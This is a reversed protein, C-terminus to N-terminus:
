PHVPAHGVEKANFVPQFGQSFFCKSPLPKEATYRLEPVSGEAPVWDWCPPAQLSPSVETSRSKLWYLRRRRVWGCAAAEIIIPSAGLWASYEQRVAPTMSGVNELFAVLEVHQMEPLAEFERVLRHLHLPQQSRPDGLGRRKLNLSTNGQCPSGGGLIVGRFTRRRLLAAFQSACLDEVNPVHVLNPMNAASVASAVADCEAALGYFHLGMQLLAICLASFGAWLDLVLWTGKLSPTWPVQVLDGKGRWAVPKAARLRDALGELDVPDEASQVLVQRLNPCPQDAGQSPAQPPPRSAAHLPWDQLLREQKRDGPAEPEAPRKDPKRAEPVELLPQVSPSRWELHTDRLANDLAWQGPQGRRVYTAMKGRTLLDNRQLWLLSGQGYEMADRLARDSYHLASSLDMFLVKDTAPGTSVLFNGAWAWAHMLVRLAFYYDTVSRLSVSVEKELQLQLGGPFAISDSGRPQAVTLVSKVKKLDLVTMTGKRFERYIRGRLQESPELVPDFSLSYRKTWDVNLQQITSDPLSEDLDESKPAVQAAHKLAQQGSEFASKFRALAIRNGKLDKVQDVHETLSKEWDSAQIMYVFDDLTTLGHHKVYLDIWAQDLNAGKFCTALRRDDQLVDIRSMDTVCATSSPGWFEALAIYLGRPMRSLCRECFTSKETGSFGRGRSQAEQRFPLDRCWPAARGEVEERVVHLKKGQKIWPLEEVATDDGLLGCIDEGEATVDSASISSDDSTDSSAKPSAPGSGATAGEAPELAGPAVEIAGEAELTDTCSPEPLLKHAAALEPWLWSDRCLLGDETLALERRKKHFLALFRNVCRQKVQLSRLVKSGAYHVGMPLSARGKRAAVDRGGGAPIEHWNGLAQLDLDPLEMINAMTPLFRRLRNFGAAQAQTFEVGVQMLAGRLLELFRSRSM